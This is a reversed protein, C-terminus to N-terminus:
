PNEEERVNNRDVALQVIQGIPGTKGSASISVWTTSSSWSGRDALVDGSMRGRPPGERLVGSRRPLQVREARDRRSGQVSCSRRPANQRSNRVSGGQGYREPPDRAPCPDRHPRSALQRHRAHIVSRQPDSECQTRIWIHSLHATSALCVGASGTFHCSYQEHLGRCPDHGGGQPLRLRSDHGHRLLRLLSLRGERHEFRIVARTRTSPVFSPYSLGGGSSSLRTVPSFLDAAEKSSGSDIWGPKM